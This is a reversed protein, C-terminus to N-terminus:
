NKWLGVSKYYGVAGPHYAFGHQKAMTKSSHTKWLPSSAKMEKENEYMAKAVKVVVDNSVDKHAWLTYDFALINSPEVIGVFPKAPKIVRFHTHPAFAQTRKSAAPGDDFSLFRIGGKIKANMDRVHGAGVGGWAADIKGQKFGNWHQRLGIYPVKKVDDYSLGGNALGASLLYHFVPAGKFGSAIRKGKLQSIKTIGSSKPVLWGIRFVMMTAVLRLNKYKKGESLGTGHQAMTYQMINSVGFELEGGNVVPIYKQTGGMVQTRMQLGGAHASVVKSITATVQATAGGKTTGIGVSAPAALAITGYTASIALVAGAALIHRSQM